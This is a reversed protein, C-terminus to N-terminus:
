DEDDETDQSLAERMVSLANGATRRQSTKHVVEDVTNTYRVWHMVITDLNTDEARAARQVRRVAQYIKGPIYTGEPVIVTRIMSLDAGESLSELTCVRVKKRAIGGTAAIMERKASDIDGTVEVGDLAECFKHATDKYWVFILVPEEPRTSNVIERVVDIKEPTVTMKRLEHLAAGANFFRKITEDEMEIQYDDRLRRYKKLIEGTLKLKVHKDVRRPMQLGVQKCTRAMMYEDLMRDFEERNRVRVISTGYGYNNTVAWRNIFSFYSTFKTKDLELIKLQHYVDGIDKYVPTASLGYVRETRMALKYLNKSKKAEERRFHHIEDVILTKVYPMFYKQLMDHNVILWDFPQTLADARQLFAGKAANVVRDSPYQERLFAEWKPALYKQCIVICPLVAAECAQWTKGMGPEDGLIARKKNYLYAIGGKTPDADVQYPRPEMNVARVPWSNPPLEYPVPESVGDDGVVYEEPLFDSKIELEHPLPGPNLLAEIEDPTVPNSVVTDELSALQSTLKELQALLDATTDSM